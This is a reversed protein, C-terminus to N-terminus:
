FIWIDITVDHSCALSLYRSPNPNYEQTDWIRSDARKRVVYWGQPERGLEHTIENVRGNVLPIDKILTGNLIPANLLGQLSNEVNDQFKNLESSNTDLKKLRKINRAM